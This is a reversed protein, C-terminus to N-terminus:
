TVTSPVIPENVLVVPAWTFFPEPSPTRHSRSRGIWSRPNMNSGAKLQIPVCDAGCSVRDATLPVGRWGGYELRAIAMWRDLAIAGMRSGMASGPQQAGM